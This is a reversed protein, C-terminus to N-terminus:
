LFADYQRLEEITYTSEKALEVAEALEPIETFEPPIDDLSENIEKLFRLWLLGIKKHELSKPKFKELELFILELGDLTKEANKTNALRYHHFWEEGTKDFSTNLIALGYVPSLNTYGDGPKLQQVYANSAGFLFRKFFSDTWNLQMEVIFIRGNCDTCKVDVITNKLDPIRPTQEAPLYEISGILSNGPLPLINNLFSKILNPHQGFIKKFVLDSKVDLLRAKGGNTNPRRSLKDM